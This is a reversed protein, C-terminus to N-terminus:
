STLQYALRVKMAVNQTNILFLFVLITHIFMEETM